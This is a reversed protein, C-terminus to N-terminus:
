NNTTTLLIADLEDALRDFPALRIADIDEDWGGESGYWRVEKAFWRLSEVPVEKLRLVTKLGADNQWVHKAHREREEDDYAGQPEDVCLTFTRYYLEDLVKRTTKFELNLLKNTM